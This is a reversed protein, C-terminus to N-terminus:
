RWLPDQVVQRICDSDFGRQYLFRQRRAKDKLDGPPNSGFKRDHVTLCSATFDVELAALGQEILDDAVGKRRLEHRIKVPGYGSNARLRWYSAAFRADDLYGYDLMEQMVQDITPAAYGKNQLKQRLEEVAHDRRSLSALASARAKLFDPPSQTPM